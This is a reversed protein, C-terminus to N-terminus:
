GGAKPKTITDLKMACTGSSAALNSTLHVVGSVSFKIIRHPHSIADRFTGPGSDDLNTIYFVEGGNGGSALAGFGEAGPFSSSDSAFSPEVLGVLFIAIILRLCCKWDRKM